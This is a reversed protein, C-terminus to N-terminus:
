KIKVVAVAFPKLVISSGTLNSQVPPDEYSSNDVTITEADKAEAPLELSQERNRLNILLLCKGKKTIFAQASVNDSNLRTDVLKDGAGFHDLILKLVWYRANPKANVWNMMSVDPFQTPYGVLQSEGIVDIGLKALDVYDRAYLAASLNWYLRPISTDTFNANVDIISGLENVTTFTHPALRKRITEIYRVNDIFNKEKNFFSYQYQEISQNPEDRSGYFHYSIGEPIVGKKHNAPNLFYEFWAPNSSLALAMGIFKTHPSLARLKLVVADYIRTYLQPSMNHEFDVENLVEWYQFTYHHNSTHFKGLEDTFGGQTYWSFLRGFYDAVEKMTSDRLEVGENYDWFVQDADAPYVVPKNIKFMWVPITSFNMVVSHVDTAKMFDAVMTDVEKFNWFTETKTPPKLEVVAMHPYPFWPVFRVYDAGLNKLSAFTNDHIPSPTRLMPNVVVQLTPISKSVVPKSNWDVTLTTKQARGVSFLFIIQTCLLFLKLTASNINKCLPVKCTSM